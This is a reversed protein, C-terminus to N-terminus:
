GAAARGADKASADLTPAQPRATLPLWNLLRACQACVDLALWRTQRAYASLM